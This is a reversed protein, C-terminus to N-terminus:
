LGYGQIRELDITSILSGLKNFINVNSAPSMTRQTGDIVAKKELALRERDFVAWNEALLADYYKLFNAMNIKFLRPDRTLLKYQRFLKQIILGLDTLPLNRINSYDSSNSSVVKDIEAYITEATVTPDSVQTREKPSLKAMAADYAKIEAPTKKVLFMKALDEDRISIDKISNFTYKNEMKPRRLKIAQM